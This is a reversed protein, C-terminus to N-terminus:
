WREDVDRPARRASLSFLLISPLLGAMAGLCTLGVVVIVAAYDSPGNPPAIAILMFGLVVAAGFAYAAEIFTLWLPIDAYKNYLGIILGILIGAIGYVTVVRLDIPGFAATSVFTACCISIGLSTLVAVLLTRNGSAKPM